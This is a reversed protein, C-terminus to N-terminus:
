RVSLDQFTSLGLTGPVNANVASSFVGVDSTTSVGEVTASGIPKWTGDDAQYSGTMTSGSRELRLTVPYTTRGAAVSREMTGNGDGDWLFQMGNTPTVAVAAGGHSDKEALDNRLMVGAKAWPWTDEQGTVTVTAVADADAADAEYIAGFEDTGAGIDKGGALVAFTNGSQGFWAPTGHAVGRFPDSVPAFARVDAKASVSGTTSGSWGYGVTVEASASAVPDTGLGDPAKVTWTLTASDGPQVSPAPDTSTPTATWGEAVEISGTVAKVPQCGTNTFTATVTAAGGASVNAPDAAVAVTATPAPADPSADTVTVKRTVPEAEGLGVGITHEGPTCIQQASLNVPIVGGGNRDFSIIGDPTTFGIGRAFSRTDRSVAKGDVFLVVDPDPLYGAGGTNEVVASVDFPEGVALTRKSPEVETVGARIPSTMRDYNAKYDAVARGYSIAPGTTDLTWRIHLDVPGSLRTLRITNGVVEVTGRAGRTLSASSITAGEPVSMVIPTTRNPPEIHATAGNARTRVEYSLRGFDTNGTFALRNGPKSWQPNWANAIRLSKDDGEYAMVDRLLNVYKGAFENHPQSLNNSGWDWRQAASLGEGASHTATTHVLLNYIGKLTADQEGRRLTTELVSIPTYSHLLGEVGNMPYTFVGEFTKKKWETLSATVWPDNPRLFGTPHVVELNGWDIGYTDGYWGTRIVEGDLGEITPPIWGIEDVAPELKEKLIGVYQDARASWQDAAAADGALRATQAAGREGAINWLDYTLVHGIVAENDDMVSEPFLGGSNEWDDQRTKWEWDMARRVAPLVEHAFQVDGTRELYTGILALTQGHGDMQGQQSIIHGESDQYLLMDTICQKALDTFGANLIGEVNFAADRLYFQDYLTPSGDWFCHGDVLDASMLSQVISARYTDIVKNEAANDPGVTPLTFRTSAREVTTRWFNETKKAYATSDADRIAELDKQQGVWYPVKLRITRSAGPELPLSWALRGDDYSPGDSATLLLKGEGGLAGAAADWVPDAPVAPGDQPQGGQSTGGEAVSAGFHATTAERGTNRLTIDVFTIMNEAQVRMSKRPFAYQQDYPVTAVDPVKAAFFSIDHEVQDRTFTQDLMPLWGDRWTKVRQNVPTHQEGTDFVVKGFQTQLNGEPTVVAEEPGGYVGIVAHPSRYWDFPEDDKDDVKPLTAQQQANDMVGYPRRLYDNFPNGYPSTAADTGTTENEAM